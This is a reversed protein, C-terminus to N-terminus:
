DPPSAPAAAPAPNSGLSSLRATALGFLLFCLGFLLLVVPMLGAFPKATDAIHAPLTAITGAYALAALLVGQIPWSEPLSSRVAAFVAGSVAGVIAGYAVIELSGALSFATDRMIMMALLRM